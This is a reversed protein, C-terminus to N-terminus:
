SVIPDEMKNSKLLSVTPPPLMEENEYIEEEINDDMEYDYDEYDDNKSEEEENYEGEEDLNVNAHNTRPIMPSQPPKDLRIESVDLRKDDKHKLNYQNLRDHSEKNNMYKPDQLLYEQPDGTHMSNLFRIYNASQTDM